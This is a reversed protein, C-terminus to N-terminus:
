RSGEERRSKREEVGSGHGGGVAELELGVEGLKQLFGAGEEEQKELLKQIFAKYEAVKEESLLLKGIKTNKRYKELTETSNDFRAAAITEAPLSEFPTKLDAASLTAALLAPSALSLLSKSINM